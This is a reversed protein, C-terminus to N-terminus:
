SQTSATAVALLLVCCVTRNVFHGLWANTM